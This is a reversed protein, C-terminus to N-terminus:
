NQKPDKPVLKVKMEDQSQPSQQPLPLATEEMELMPEQAVSAAPPQSVATGDEVPPVFSDQQSSAESSKQVQEMQQRESKLFAPAKFSQPEITPLPQPNVPAPRKQPTKEFVQTLPKLYPKREEFTRRHNQEKSQLEKIKAEVVEGVRDASMPEATEFDRGNTYNRKALYDDPRSPNLLTSFRMYGEVFAFPSEHREPLEKLALSLYSLFKWMNSEPQSSSIETQAMELTKRELFARLDGGHFHRDLQFSLRDLFDQRLLHERRQLSLSELEREKLTLKEQPQASAPSTDSLGINRVDMLGKRISRDIQELRNQNKEVLSKLASLAEERSEAWCQFSFFYPVALALGLGIRWKM